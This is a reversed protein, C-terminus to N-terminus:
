FRLSMGVGSQGGPLPMLGVRFRSPPVDVWRRYRAASIAGDVTGVLWNLAYGGALLLM